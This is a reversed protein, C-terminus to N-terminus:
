PTWRRVDSQWRRRSSHVAVHLLPSEHKAVRPDLISELRNNQQHRFLAPCKKPCRPMYPRYVEVQFNTASLLHLLPLIAQVLNM